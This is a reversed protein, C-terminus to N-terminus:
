GVQDRAAKEDYAARAQDIDDAHEVAWTMLSCVTSMLTTGLPTLRYDVRPPVVPHVTREVLGDRELARVTSTLMRQSIGDIGRQLETFRMVPTTSLQHVVSLSWKDAIRDLVQRAYCMRAQRADDVQM